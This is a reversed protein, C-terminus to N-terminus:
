DSRPPWHWTRPRQELSYPVSTMWQHCSGKPSIGDNQGDTFVCLNVYDAMGKRPGDPGIAEIEFTRVIVAPRTVIHGGDDEIVVLVIRGISPAQNM